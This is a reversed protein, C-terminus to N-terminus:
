PGGRRRVKSVRKRLQVVRPNVLFFSVEDKDRFCHCRARQRLKALAQLLDRQTHDLTPGSLQQGSDVVQVGAVRADHVAIDYPSEKPASVHQMMLQGKEEM